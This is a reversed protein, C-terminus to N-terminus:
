QPLPQEPARASRRSSWAQAAATVTAAHIDVADAIREAYGGGMVLAVAAGAEGARDLVLTDRAALGRKSLALRGLRDGEFADAGALYFVVDPRAREFALELGLTLAELYHADGTGDPLAVDCDSIAKDHPYNRASHVSFTYHRGSGALLRATGDGQHVDCDVVLTNLGHRRGVDLAAVAVDNFVCFGAGGAASAHHTGGALSAAVGDELAAETAALTAGVSRRSRELLAPSWPFGLRRLEARDLRGEFVRDVWDRTHALLLVERGAAPAPCLRIRPDAAREIRERLHAYKQIPFRHGEPLPIVFRDSHFVRM